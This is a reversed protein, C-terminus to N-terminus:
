CWDVVENLLTPHGRKVYAVYKAMHEYMLDHAENAKGDQIAKAIAAHTTGVEKRRTKLFSHTCIGPQYIRVEGDIPESLRRCGRCFKPQASANTTDM